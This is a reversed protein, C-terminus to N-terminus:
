HRMAHKILIGIGFAVAPLGLAVAVPIEPQPAKPDLFPALHPMLLLFASALATGLLWQRVLVGVSDSRSQAPAPGKEPWKDPVARWLKNATADPVTLHGLSGFGLEVRPWWASQKRTLQLDSWPVLFPRCFPGFLRLISVRLGT